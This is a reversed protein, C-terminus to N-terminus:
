ILALQPGSSEQLTRPLGHLHICVLLNNGVLSLSLSSLDREKSNGLDASRHGRLLLMGRALKSAPVEM